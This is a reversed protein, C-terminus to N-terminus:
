PCDNSKTLLHRLPHTNQHSIQKTNTKKKSLTTHNLHLKTTIVKKIIRYKKMGLEQSSDIYM